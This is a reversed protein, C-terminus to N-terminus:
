DALAGAFLRGKRGIFCVQEGTRLNIPLIITFIAVPSQTVGLGPHPLPNVRARRMKQRRGFTDGVIRNSGRM